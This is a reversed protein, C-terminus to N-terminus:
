VSRSPRMRARLRQIVHLENVKSVVVNVVASILVISIASAYVSTSSLLAAPFSFGQVFFETLAYVEGVLLGATFATGNGKKIVLSSLMTGLIPTSFFALFNLYWVITSTEFIGTVPILFISLLALIVTSLRGFLVQEEDAHHSRIAPYLHLAFLASASQFSLAFLGTLGGILGVIIIVDVTSSTHFSAISLSSSSYSILIVTALLVAASSGYLVSRFSTKESSASIFKHVMGLEFWMIWLLLLLMGIGVIGSNTVVINNTTFIDMGAQLMGHFSFLSSESFLLSRTIVFSIGAAVLIGNIVNAYLVANLGGALVFVGASAIMLVQMGFHSGSFFQSLLLESLYLYLLIQGTCIFLLGHLSLLIKTVGNSSEFQAKVAPLIARGVILSVILSICLFISVLISSQNQAIAPLVLIFLNIFIILFISAAIVVVGKTKEAFFYGHVSRGMSRSLLLAFLMVFGIYGYLILYPVPTLIM